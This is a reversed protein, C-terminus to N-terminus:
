AADDLGPNIAYRAPGLVHEHIVVLGADLLAALDRVLGHADELELESPIGASPHSTPDAPWLQDIATM